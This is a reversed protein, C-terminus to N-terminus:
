SELLRRTHIAYHGWAIVPTAGLKEYFHIADRNTRLVSWSLTTAKIKLAEAALLQMARQGFGNGRHNPDIYIDELYLSAEGSYTSHQPFTVAYGIVTDSLALFYASFQKTSLLTELRDSTITVAEPRGEYDALRHIWSLLEDVDEAGCHVLVLSESTM